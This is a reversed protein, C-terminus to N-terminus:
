IHMKRKEEQLCHEKSSDDRKEGAEFTYQIDNHRDFASLTREEQELKDFIKDILFLKKALLRTIGRAEKVSQRWATRGRTSNKDLM